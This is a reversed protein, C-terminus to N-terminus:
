PSPSAPKEDSTIQGRASIIRDVQFTVHFLRETTRGFFPTETIVELTYTGDRYAYNSLDSISIKQTQPVNTPEEVLDSNYHRGYRLETGGIMTGATGLVAA